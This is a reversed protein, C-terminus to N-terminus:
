DQNPLLKWLLLALVLLLVFILMWDWDDGGCTQVPKVCICANDIKFECTDIALNGGCEVLPGEVFQVCAQLANENWLARIGNCDTEATFDISECHMEYEGYPIGFIDLVTEFRYTNPSGPAAPIPNSQFVFNRFHGFRDLLEIKQRRTDGTGKNCIELHFTVLYKGNPQQTIKIVTLQNPDHAQVYQIDNM